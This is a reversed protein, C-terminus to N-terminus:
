AGPTSYHEAGRAQGAVQNHQERAHELLTLVVRALDSSLAVQEGPDYLNVIRLVTNNGAMLRRHLLYTKAGLAVKITGVGGDLTDAALWRYAEVFRGLEGPSLALAIVGGAGDFITM